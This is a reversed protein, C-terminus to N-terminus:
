IFRYSFLYYLATMLVALGTVLLQERAGIQRALLGVVICSLIVALM